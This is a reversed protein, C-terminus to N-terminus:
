YRFTHRFHGQCQIPNLLVGCTQLITYLESSITKNNLFLIFVRIFYWGGHTLSTKSNFWVREYKYSIVSRLIFLLYIWSLCPRFLLQLYCSALLMDSVLDVNFCDIVYWFGFWCPFLWYCILFWILMSVTLLMDSVLNFCTNWSAM